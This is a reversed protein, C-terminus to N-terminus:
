RRSAKHSPAPLEPPPLEGARLAREADAAVQSAKSLLSLLEGAVEFLYLGAQVGGYRARRAQARRHRRYVIGSGSRSAPSVADGIGDDRSLRGAEDHSVRFGTERRVPRGHVVQPTEHAELPGHIEGEGIPLQRRLFRHPSAEDGAHRRVVDERLAGGFERFLEGVARRLREACGFPQQGGTTGLCQLRLQLVLRLDDGVDRM